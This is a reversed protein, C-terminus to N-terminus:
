SYYCFSFMYVDKDLVIFLHFSDFEWYYGTMLNDPENKIIYFQAKEINTKNFFQFKHNDLVFLENLLYLISNRVKINFLNDIGQSKYFWSSFSKYMKGTEFIQNLSIQSLQFDNNLFDILKPICRKDSDENTKYFNEQYQKFYDKLNNTTFKHLEMKHVTNWICMNNYSAICDLYNNIQELKEESTM